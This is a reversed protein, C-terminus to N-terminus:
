SIVWVCCQVVYGHDYKMLYVACATGQRHSQLLRACQAIVYGLCLM